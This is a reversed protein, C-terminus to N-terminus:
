EGSIIRFNVIGRYNNTGDPGFGFENNAADSLSVNTSTIGFGETKYIALVGYQDYSFQSISSGAGFITEISSFRGDGDYEYKNETLPYGRKETVRANEDYSITVFEGDDNDATHMQGYMDVFNQYYTGTSTNTSADYTYDIYSEGPWDDDVSFARESVTHGQEDYSCEYWAGSNHEWRTMRGASDFTFTELLEGTAQKTVTRTYSGDANYTNTEVETDDEGGYGHCYSYVEKVLMGQEDYTPVYHHMLCDYTCISRSEYVEISPRQGEGNPTYIAYIDTTEDESFLEVRETGAQAATGNSEAGEGGAGGGGTPAGCAVLSLVMVLALLLTLFKKM